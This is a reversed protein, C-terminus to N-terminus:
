SLKCQMFQFYDKLAAEKTLPNARDYENTFRIRIEDYDVVYNQEQAKADKNCCDKFTNLFLLYFPYIISISGLVLMVVSLAEAKGRLM